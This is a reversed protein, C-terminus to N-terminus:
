RRAQRRLQSNEAMAVFFAGIVTGIINAAMDWADPEFDLCLEKFAGITLTLLFAIMLARQFRIMNIRLVYVGSVILAYSALIHCWKDYEM